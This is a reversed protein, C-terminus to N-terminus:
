NGTTRRLLELIGGGLAFDRARRGAESRAADRVAAGAGRTAAPIGARLSAPVAAAAAPLTVAARGTLTAIPHDERMERERGEIFAKAQEFTLGEPAKVLHRLGPTSAVTSTLDSLFGLMPVDLAATAAAELASADPAREHPEPLRGESLHVSTVGNDKAHQALSRWDTFQGNSLAAVAENIQEESRGRDAEDRAALLLRFLEEDM